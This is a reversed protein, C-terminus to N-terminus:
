SIENKDGSYRTVWYGRDNLRLLPRGKKDSVKSPAFCARDRRHLDFGGVGGFYEGCAGCKCFNKGVPLMPDSM